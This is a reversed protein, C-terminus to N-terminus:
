LEHSNHGSLDLVGVALVDLTHAPEFPQQMNHVTLKYASAVQVVLLSARPASILRRAASPELVFAAFYASLQHGSLSSLVRKGM